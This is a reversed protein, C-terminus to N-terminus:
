PISWQQNTGGDCTWLDLQTGDATNSGPDDLCKGSAPNVLTGNTAKWQQNAGGNCTWLEIGTGNGYNAGTIDMCMGYVQLTGNSAVTWQQNPGGNCDWMQIKTGNATSQGIDDVCKASDDGARISGAPPPPPTTGALGFFSIAYAAMGSLPLEHGAGASSYAEVQVTGSSNDYRTRTWGPQPTDTSTPTQSVGLV